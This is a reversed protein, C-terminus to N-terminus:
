QHFTTPTPSPNFAIIAEDLDGLGDSIFPRSSRGDIPLCLMGVLAWCQGFDNPTKRKFEVAFSVYGAQCGVPLKINAQFIHAGAQPYIGAALAAADQEDVTAIDQWGLDDGLGRGNV